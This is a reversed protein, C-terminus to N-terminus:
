YSKPLGLVRESLFSLFSLMLERSVPTIRAIM